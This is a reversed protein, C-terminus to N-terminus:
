LIETLQESFLNVILPEFFLWFTLRKDYLWWKSLGEILDVQSRSRIMMSFPIWYASNRCHQRADSSVLLGYSPSRCSVNELCVTIKEPFKMYCKDTQLVDSTNEPEKNNHWFRTKVLLLINSLHGPWDSCAFGKDSRRLKRDFVVSSANKNWLCFYTTKIKQIANESNRILM